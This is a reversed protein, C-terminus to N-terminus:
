NDQAPAPSPTPLPRRRAMLLIPLLFPLLLVLASPLLPLASLSKLQPPFVLMVLSAAWPWSACVLFIVRAFPPLLAWDRVLMLAPLILLVQNFPPILPLALSTVVFFTALALTFQPSDAGHKRHRWAWALLGAVLGIASVAGLRNGLALQLLDSFPGYKRYAALGALFDRLWGPRVLEGAGILLALAAGFGAPLRWRKPLDGTSWLLFWALPLVMMQPKITALALIVGAAALHNRVALWTALALLFGVLLGLQRLRLGQVIQPTALVFLMTTLATTLSPRWRLVPLWLWVSAAILVILVIPAWAQVAEFGVHITPALLFVVYVPYAFRQEDVITTGPSYQQVVDHGYFALQIEHTVGPGYPNRGELLLARTGAWPSYLDGLAAKMTGAEVHVYHEWPGLVRNMYLRATIAALLSLLLWLRPKMQPAQEM